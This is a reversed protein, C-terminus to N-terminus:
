ARGFDISCIGRVLKAARSMLGVRGLLKAEDKLSAPSTDHPHADILPMQLNMAHNM